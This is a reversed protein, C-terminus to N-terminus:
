WGRRKEPAIAWMTTRIARSTSNTLYALQKLLEQKQPILKDEKSDLQTKLYAAEASAQSFRYDAHAKNSEIQAKLSKIEKRLSRVTVPPKKAM